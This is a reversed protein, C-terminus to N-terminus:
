KWKRGKRLNEEATLYQMNWPVNLGCVNKGALPVIHDVHYGRPRLMYIDAIQQIMEATLWKPTAQKSRSNRLAKRVMAAMKNRHYYRRKTQRDLELNNLRWNASAAASKAIREPTRRNRDYERHQELHRARNSVNYERIKDPNRKRFSRQYCISCVGKAYVTLSVCESCAM